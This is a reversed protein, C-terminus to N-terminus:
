GLPGSATPPSGRHARVTRATRVIRGGGLVLGERYFVAIQGPAVARVAADFAVHLGGCPGADITAEVENSGHRVRVCARLPLTHGERLFFPDVEASSALLDPAGGLRVTGTGADVETVFVPRGLAVGLGKREGITFRHIGDHSGVPRGTDDVIPGPRVRGAARAHVFQAYASSGPGVFCLEQSEGKSAGPLGLALAEARVESKLSDGVPFVLRELEERRASYLFYSQDKSRDRGQALHPVGAADREVRAYHGTAVHSAGLRGALEFLVDM